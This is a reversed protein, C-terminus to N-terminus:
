QYTVRVAVWDLSFDRNTNASVNIIRVRFNTNIFDAPSWTRGWTDAAGGLMYTAESTTLIATTKATTWTMGGNWSLQVCIRPQGGATDARADLRVEIGNITTAGVPLSVSYDRYVHKDKGNSRAASSFWTTAAAAPSRLGM